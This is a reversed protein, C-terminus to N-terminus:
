FRHLLLVICKGIDIHKFIHAAAIVNRKGDRKGLAPINMLVALIRLLQREDDRQDIYIFLDNIFDGSIQTGKEM